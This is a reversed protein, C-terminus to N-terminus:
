NVFRQSHRTPLYTSGSWTRKRCCPVRLVCTWADATSSTVGLTFGGDASRSARRYCDPQRAILTRPKKKKGRADVMKYSFHTSEFFCTAKTATSLSVSIHASISPSTAVDVVVLWVQSSIVFMATGSLMLLSFLLNNNCVYIVYKGLVVSRRRSHIASPSWWSVIYTHAAANMQKEDESIHVYQHSTFTVPIIHTEIQFYDNM